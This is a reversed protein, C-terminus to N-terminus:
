IKVDLLNDRSNAVLASIESYYVALFKSDLTTTKDFSIKNDEKTSFTSYNVDNKTNTNDFINAIPTNAISANDTSSISAGASLLYSPLYVLQM